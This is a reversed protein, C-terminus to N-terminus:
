GGQVATVIEVDDGPALGVAAWQSRPVVVANRAVAVGLRKGDATQGDAAIPRGTLESVLDTVTQGHPLARATGNLTIEAPRSESM